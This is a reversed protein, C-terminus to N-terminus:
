RLFVSLSISIKQELKRSNKKKKKKCDLVVQIACSFTQGLLCMNQKIRENHCITESIYPSNFQLKEM